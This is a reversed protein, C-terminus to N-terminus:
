RNVISQVCENESQSSPRPPKSRPSESLPRILELLTRRSRPWMSSSTATLPCTLLFVVTPGTREEEAAWLEKPAYTPLLASKQTSPSLWRMQNWTRCCPFSTSAPSRRSDVMRTIWTKVCPTIAQVVPSDGSLFSAKTHWWMKWTSSPKSCISDEALGLLKMLTRLTLEWTM